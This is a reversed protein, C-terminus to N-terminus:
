KRYVGSLVPQLGVPGKSSAFTVLDEDTSLVCLGYQAINRADTALLEQLDFNYFTNPTTVKVSHTRTTSCKPPGSTENWDTTAASVYVDMNTTGSGLGSLYLKLVAKELGGATAIEPLGFKIAIMGPYFVDGTIQDTLILNTSKLFDPCFNLVKLWDKSVATKLKFPALTPSAPVATPEPTAIIKYPFPELQWIPLKGNCTFTSPYTFIDLIAVRNSFPTAFGSSIVLTVNGGAALKQGEAPQTRIAQDIGVQQSDERTVTVKFCPQPSCVAGLKALADAQSMNALGPITFAAQGKSITVTVESGPKVKEDVAPDYSIVLGAPVTDSYDESVPEKMKLGAKEIAAQAQDATMEALDPVAVTRNSLIVVVVIAIILLAGGGILAYIWWPRTKPASKSIEFTVSQGAVTRQEPEGSGEWLMDMAFTCTGAAATPPVTIQLKYQESHSIPFDREAPALTFWGEGGPPTTRIIAQARLPRGSANFVSYTFEAQRKENLQLSNTPAQIVFENPM